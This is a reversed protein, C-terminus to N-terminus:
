NGTNAATFYMLAYLKSSFAHSCPSISASKVKAFNSSFINTQKNVWFTGTCYSLQYTHVYLAGMVVLRAVLPWECSLCIKIHWNASSLFVSDTHHSLFPLTILVKQYSSRKELNWLLCETQMLRLHHLPHPGTM